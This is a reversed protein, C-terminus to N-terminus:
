EKGRPRRLIVEYLGARVEDLHQEFQSGSKAEGIGYCLFDLSIRFHDAVRKVADIDRPSQGELWNYITKSSVGAKRALQAVNIDNERLLVKLQKDLKMAKLMPSNVIDSKCKGKQNM